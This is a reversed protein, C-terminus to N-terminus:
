STALDDTSFPLVSHTPDLPSGNPLLRTNTTSNGYGRAGRRAAPSPRAHPCRRDRGGLRRSRRGSSRSDCEMSRSSTSTTGAGPGTRSSGIFGSSTYHPRSSAVRSGRRILGLRACRRYTPITARAAVAASQWWLLRVRAARGSRADRRGRHSSREWHSAVSEPARLRSHQKRTLSDRLYRARGSAWPTPNAPQDTPRILHDAGISTWARSSRSRPPSRAIAAASQSVARAHRSRTSSSPSLGSASVPSLLTAIISRSYSRAISSLSRANSKYLAAPWTARADSLAIQSVNM